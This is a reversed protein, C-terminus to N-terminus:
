GQVENGIRRVETNVLQAKEPFATLKVQAIGEDLVQLCYNLMDKVKWLFENGAETRYYMRDSDDFRCLKKETMFRLYDNLQDFSLNATYMMRTKVCPMVELMDAIIELRGRRRM